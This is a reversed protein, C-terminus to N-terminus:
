DQLSWYDAAPILNQTSLIVQDRKQFELNRHGKNYYKVQKKQALILVDRAIEMTMAWHEYLEQATKIKVNKLTKAVVS